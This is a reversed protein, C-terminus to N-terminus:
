KKLLDNLDDKLYHISLEVDKVAIAHVLNAVVEPHNEAFQKGHLKSIKDYVVKWYYLVENIHEDMRESYSKIETNM